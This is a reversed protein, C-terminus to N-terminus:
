RLSLAESYVSLLLSSLAEKDVDGELEEVSRKLLVPTDDASLSEEEEPSEVDLHLHDDVVQLDMPSQEEIARVFEDFALGDERSEVILKVIKGSSDSPPAAGDRYYVKAHLPRPNPVHEMDMTEDDIVWFGRPDSWDSWCMEYPAGTYLVNGKSSGHHFHGSLVGRFKKFVSSDMSGGMEPSSAYMKFGNLELHGMCYPATSGGIERLSVERNDDCIWPVLLTRLKGMTVEAPTSYVKVRDSRGMVLERLSNISTTNKHYSDHNGVVVHTDYASAPDLFCYRMAASTQYSVYKRRDMLDGMHVISSVRRRELEPFFHDLFYASQYELM